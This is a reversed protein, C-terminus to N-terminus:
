RSEEFHFHLYAECFRGAFTDEKYLHFSYSEGLQDPTVPYSIKLRARKGDTLLDDPTKQDIEIVMIEIIVSEGEAQPVKFTFRENQFYAKGESCSKQNTQNAYRDNVYFKLIFQGHSAFANECNNTVHLKDVVVDLTQLKPAAPIPYKKIWTTFYYAKIADKKESSAFMWIPVLSERDFDCLTPSKNIGNAWTNYQASSEITNILHSNGGVITLQVESMTEANVSGNASSSSYEGHVLGYRGKIINELESSSSIETSKKSMSYDIRGGLMASVIVHTGYREFIISPSQQELDKKFADDLYPKLSSLDRTDLSVKWNLNIDMRTHYYRSSVNSTSQSFNSGISGKFFLANGSLNVHSAMHSSYEDLSSGKVDKISHKSFKELYVQSPVNYGSESKQSCKSFDFVRYRKISSINAYEGFVDYGRGIVDSGPYNQCLVSSSILVFSLSLTLQSYLLRVKM